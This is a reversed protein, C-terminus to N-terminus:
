ASADMEDDRAESSPGGAETDAVAGSSTTSATGDSPRRPGGSGDTPGDAEREALLRELRELREELAGSRRTAPPMAAASSGSDRRAGAELRAVRDEIARFRADADRRVDSLAGEFTAEAQQLTHLLQAARHLQSDLSSTLIRSDSLSDYFTSFLSMFAQKSSGSSAAGAAVASPHAPAVLGASHPPLASFSPSPATPAGPAAVSASLPPLPSPPGYHFSGSASHPPPYPPGSPHYTPGSSHPGGGGRASPPLSYTGNPASTRMPPLRPPPPGQASPAALRERDKSAASSRPSMGGQSPPRQQSSSGQSSFGAGPGFPQSPRIYYTSSSVLPPQPQAGGATGGSQRRPAPATERASSPGGPLSARMERERAAQAAFTAEMPSGVLVSPIEIPASRLTGFSDIFTHGPAASLSARPHASLTTHPTPGATTVAPPRHGRRKALGSGSTRGDESVVAIASGRRASLSSPVASITASDRRRLQPASGAPPHAPQSALVSPTPTANTTALINSATDALSQLPSHVIRQRKNSSSPPSDRGQQPSSSGKEPTEEQTALEDEEDSILVRKLSGRRGEKGGSGDAPAPPEGLGEIVLAEKAGAAGVGVGEIGLGTTTSSSPRPNLPAPAPFSFVSPHSVRRAAGASPPPASASPRSSSSAASAAGGEPPAASGKFPPIQPVAFDARKLKSTSSDQPMHSHKNLPYSSRAPPLVENPTLPGTSEVSATSNGSKPPRPGDYENDSAAGFAAAFSPLPAPRRSSSAPSPIAHIPESSPALAASSSM